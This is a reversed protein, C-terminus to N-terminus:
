GGAAGFSAGVGLLLLPRDHSGVQYGLGLRAYEAFSGVVSLVLRQGDSTDRSNAFLDVGAKYWRDTAFTVGYGIGPTFGSDLKGSDLKLQLLTVSVSPAFCIRGGELCGGFRPEAARAFRPAALVAVTAIMALVVLLGTRGFGPAASPTKVEAHSAKGDSAIMGGIFATLAAKWDGTKQYLEIAVILGLVTTKWNVVFWSKLLTLIAEM